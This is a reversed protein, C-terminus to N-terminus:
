PQKAADATATAQWFLLLVALNVISSSPLGFLGGGALTAFGTTSTLLVAVGVGVASLWAPLRVFARRHRDVRREVGGAVGALLWATPLVVVVVAVHVIWWWLSLPVVQWNVAMALAAAIGVLPIHWLYIGMARGAVVAVGAWLRDSTLATALWPWIAALLLVQGAGYLLLVLSPPALNSLEGDGSVTVLSSSYPGMVALAAAAALLGIGGLAVLGRRAARLQPLQYGLQHLWGWVLLFNLWGLVSPAGGIRAVDVAAVLMAWVTLTVVPRQRWGATVPVAAVVLTYVGAFWLLQALFRGAGTLADPVGGAVTLVVVIAMLLVTWFGSYVVVPTALRRTRRRLFDSPTSRALSAANSVAGVAFFLPLVQFLWTIATLSPVQELVNVPSGDDAIHWALSHGIVVALLAVTKVTDVVRDRGRTADLVKTILSDTM